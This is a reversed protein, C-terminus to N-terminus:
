GECIEFNHYMGLKERRGLHLIADGRIIFAGKTPTLGVEATTTRAVRSSQATVQYM